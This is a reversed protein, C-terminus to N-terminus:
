GMDAEGRGPLWLQTVIEQSGGGGGPPPFCRALRVKHWHFGDALRVKQSKRLPLNHFLRLLRSRLEVDPIGSVDVAEGQDVRWLLQRLPV